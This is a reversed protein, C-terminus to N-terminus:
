ELKDWAARRTSGMGCGAKLNEFRPLRPFSVASESLLRGPRLWGFLSLFLATGVQRADAPILVHVGLRPSVIDEPCSFWLNVRGM